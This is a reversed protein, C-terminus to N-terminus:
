AFTLKIVDKLYPDDKLMWLAVAWNAVLIWALVAKIKKSREAATITEAASVPSGYM